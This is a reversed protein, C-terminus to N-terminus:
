PKTDQIIKSLTAYALAPDSAQQIFGGTNLVDVGAALLQGANLDNIGGDWGIEIDPALEKLEKVKHLMDLNAEGGQYGLHGGFVLVHDIADLWNIITQIPTKELLAVGRKIGSGALGLIADQADDAEAHVIVLNPKLEFAQELCTLPKQYMLHLDIIKNDPLWARSLGLLHTPAFEGDAFDIHIRNAFGAVREMQARYEHPDEATITPAVIPM